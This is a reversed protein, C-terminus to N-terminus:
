ESRIKIMTLTVRGHVTLIHAEEDLKEALISVKPIFIARDDQIRGFCQYLVEEDVKM